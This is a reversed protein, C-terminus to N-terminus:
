VKGRRKTMATEGKVPAATVESVPSHAADRMVSRRRKPENLGGAGGARNIKAKRFKSGGAVAFRGNGRTTEGGVELFQRIGVVDKGVALM